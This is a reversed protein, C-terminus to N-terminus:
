WASGGLQPKYCSIDATIPSAGRVPRGTEGFTCGDDSDVAEQTRSCWLEDMATFGARRVAVCRSCKGCRCVSRTM